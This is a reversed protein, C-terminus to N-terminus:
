LVQVTYMNIIIAGLPGAEIPSTRLATFLTRFRFQIWSDSQLSCHQPDMFNQYPNPDPRPDASELNKQKNNKTKSPVNEDNKLSLFIM